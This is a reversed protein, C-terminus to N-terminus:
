FRLSLTSTVDLSFGAARGLAIVRLAAELKELPIGADVAVYHQPNEQGVSDCPL